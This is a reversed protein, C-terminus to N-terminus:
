EGLSLLKQDILSSGVRFISPTIPADIAAGNISIKPHPLKQKGTKREIQPTLNTHWLPTSLAIVRIIKKGTDIANEDAKKAVRIGFLVHICLNPNPPKNPSVDILIMSFDKGSTEVVHTFITVIIIDTIESKISRNTDPNELFSTLPIELNKNM